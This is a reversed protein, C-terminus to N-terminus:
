SIRVGLILVKIRRFVGMLQGMELFVAAIGDCAAV